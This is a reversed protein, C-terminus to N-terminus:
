FIKSCSMKRNKFENSIGDMALAVTLMRAEAKREKNINTLDSAHSWSYETSAPKDTIINAAGFHIDKGNKKNFDVIAKAILSQEVDITDLGFKIRQGVYKKTQEIPSNTNGHNVGIAVHQSTKLLSSNLIVNNIDVYTQDALYFGKPVSVDYVNTKPTIGGASGMFLVIKPEMYLAQEILQSSSEGWITKDSKICAVNVPLDNIKVQYTAVTLGESMPVVSQLKGIRSLEQGMENFYGLAVVDVTKLQAKLNLFERRLQNNLATIDKKNLFYKEVQVQVSQFMKIYHVMYQESPPLILLFRPKGDAFESGRVFAKEIGWRSYLSPIIHVNEPKFGLVQSSNEKIGGYVIVPVKYKKLTELVKVGVRQEVYLDPDHISHESDLIYDIEQGKLLNRAKKGAPETLNNKQLAAQLEASWTFGELWSSSLPKENNLFSYWDKQFKLTVADSEKVQDFSLVEDSFERLLSNFILQEQPAMNQRNIIQGFSVSGFLFVMALTQLVFWCVMRKIHFFRSGM